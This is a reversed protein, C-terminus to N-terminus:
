ISPSRGDDTTAGCCLPLSITAEIEDQQEYEYEDDREIQHETRSRTLTQSRWANFCM